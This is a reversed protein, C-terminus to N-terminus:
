AMFTSCGLLILMIFPLCDITPLVGLTLITSDKGDDTNKTQGCSAFAVAILLSLIFFFLKRM